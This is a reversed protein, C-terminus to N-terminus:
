ILFPIPLSVSCLIAHSFTGMAHLDDYSVPYVISQDICSTLENENYGALKAVDKVVSSIYEHNARIWEVPNKWPSIDTISGALAQNLYIKITPLQTTHLISTATHNMQVPPDSYERNLGPPDALYGAMGPRLPEDYDSMLSLTQNHRRNDAIASLTLTRGRIGM